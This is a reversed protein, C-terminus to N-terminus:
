EKKEEKERFTLSILGYQNTGSVMDYKLDKCKQAFICCRYEGDIYHRCDISNDFICKRM